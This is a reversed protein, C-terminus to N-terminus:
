IVALAKSLPMREFCDLATQRTCNIVRIGEAKLDAALTPFKRACLQPMGVSFNGLPSPHDAHNHHKGGTHQMDYGLLIVTHGQRAGRHWLLNLVQYGSNCGTRLGTRGLGEGEERSIYRAGFERSRPDSSWREGGFAQLKAAEGPHKSPDGYEKAWTHDAFFLLDAWPAAFVQNNIAVVFGRGRVADIDEQCQSPGSALCFWTKM